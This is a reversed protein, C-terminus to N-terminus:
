GVQVLAIKSRRRQVFIALNQPAAAYQRKREDAVVCGVVDGVRPRLPVKLVRLEARENRRMAVDQECQPVAVFVARGAAGRLDDTEVLVVVHRSERVALWSRTEVVGVVLA